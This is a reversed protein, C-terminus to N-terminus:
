LVHGAAVLDEVALGLSKFVTLDEDARRGDAAGILVEGLEAHIHDEGVVGEGLPILFDGSEHLASERSDVVFVSDRVTASHLDRGRAANSPFIALTKLGWLRREGGRHVPMLVMLSEEGPPQTMSRLPNHVEGRALASLAAGMADICEGMPLLRRVAHEDLVRVTM